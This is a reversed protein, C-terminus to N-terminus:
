NIQYLIISNSDGKTIFELNRDKDINDLNLPSNGYVPFNPLLKSQSDYLYIKHSQLDTVSVYIKDNIYFINPNSYDGYDLQTTKSKIILNNESQAVLTKSTTELYHNETLNLNKLSTNGKTDISILNGDQTTTTFTNKYLFVPQDSYSTSTKPVVRNRGTRDLIYLKSKTKLSIYDKGSIRFHKPQSIIHGNASKFTFGSVIKAQVNYMLVHKGQTVLLRYNKNKDYDFVSLPQTIQDNFKAPFSGVDRGKRDIVYIRNPTAFALQLRGNKYIDIQEITGLVSGHLQKKWLIKGKNSILYLNNNIDQVVIEKQKTIHNTVFQPNNLLEKELKINLEESISNSSARTKHKKIIGNIHAFNNDYIFQLASTSYNNLKFNHTDELNTNLIQKLTSPTYVYMLSSEDSIHSKINKFYQKESFTTKNQYNAIINQLMEISNAFVFFNNIVCYKNAKKYNILPSFTESFLDPADFNFISIERYTDIIDQNSILADETAINDVSNLIIARNNDEYIIGIEVIDNFLNSISVISDKKHFAILNSEFTKFDDFTFSMFGDSNSPTINQTLNEQPICNKFINIFSNLSDTAKTIGNIIVENQNIDSDFAIYNTFTNLPLKNDISFSKIFSSDTKIIISCTGDNNTTKYIKKLENNEQPLEYINDIIEKSSSAFFTSDIITSYFSDNEITSKIIPKNKYSLTEKIYNPLSDTKFLNANYKTIVSYQLGDNSDKSLCFLIDSESKLHSLPKLTNELNKFSITNSIKQLFDSNSITSKLGELNSTKIIISTNEPVFDILNTYNKNPNSCSVFLILFFLTLTLSKM